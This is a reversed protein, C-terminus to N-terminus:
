FDLQSVYTANVLLKKKRGFTKKPGVNKKGLNKKVIKKGVWIKNRDWIKKETRFIEESWLNKESQFNLKLSLIKKQVGFIKKYMFNKPVLM